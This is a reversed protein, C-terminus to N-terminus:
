IGLEDSVMKKIDKHIDEPPRDANVFIVRYGMSKFKKFGARVRSHYSLPQLDFHTKLREKDKKIRELAIEPPLDLVIYLSPEVGELSLKRFFSFPQLLKTQSGGFIQFAFTSSDFRDSIVNQGKLLAPSVVKKIHDHRDAWFLFFQTLPDAEKGIPNLIIKRIEEGYPSGGPERTFLVSAKKESLFKKLLEIQAGKGSGDLGDLVIFKGKKKEM